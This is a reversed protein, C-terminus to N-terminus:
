FEGEFEFNGDYDYDKILGKGENLEYVVNNSIDYGKGTWKKDNLHRFFKQEM